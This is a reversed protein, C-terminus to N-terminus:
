IETGTPGLVLWHQGHGHGHRVLIVTGTKELWWFDFFLYIFIWLYSFYASLVNSIKQKMSLPCSAWIALLFIMGSEFFFLVIMWYKFPTLNILVDYPNMLLLKWSAFFILNSFFLTWGIDIECAKLCFASINARAKICQM